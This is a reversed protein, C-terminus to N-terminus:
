IELYIFILGTSLPLRQGRWKTRKETRGELNAVSDLFLQKAFLASNNQLIRIRRITSLLAMFVRKLHLRHFFQFSAEFIPGCHTSTQGKMCSVQALETKTAFVFDLRLVVVHTFVLGPIPWQTIKYQYCVFLSDCSPNPTLM